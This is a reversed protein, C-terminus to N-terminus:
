GKAKVAKSIVERELGFVRALQNVTTKRTRWVYPLLRLKKELPLRSLESAFWRQATDAVEKFFESDPLMRRPADVLNEKMEARNLGGITKLWFAQDRNFVQELYATDCFSEPALSGDEDLLWGVQKLSDGTHMVVERERKTLLSVPKIGPKWESVNRSHRFMARFGSWRYEHVPCNNDLANNPIYALANRVHRDNELAIAKADVRQLIGEEKYKKRFWMSYVRKLEEGFADADKQNRALVAEHCHNSVVAYIIILVNKRRACIAIYKVMVDYDENDRCLVANELGKLSVHFPHVRTETGDPLIRSITKDM